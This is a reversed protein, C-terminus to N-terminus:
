TTDKTSATCGEGLNQTDTSWRVQCFVGLYIHSGVMSCICMTFAQPVPFLSEAFLCSHSLSHVSVFRDLSM